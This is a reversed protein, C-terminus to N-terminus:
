AQTHWPFYLYKLHPGTLEDTLDSLKVPDAHTNDTIWIEGNEIREIYMLHGALDDAYSHAKEFVIVSGVLPTEGSQIGYEQFQAALDDWLHADRPINVPIPMRNVIYNVCGETNQKIIEPTDSQELTAIVLLDAEHGPLVRGLRTELKQIENEVREKEAILGMIQEDFGHIEAQIAQIRPITDPDITSDFSLLRNQLASLDEALLHRQEALDGIQAKYGILQEQQQLLEDYVPRNVAAIYDEPDPPAPPPSLIDPLPVAHHQEPTPREIQTNHTEYHTERYIADLSPLAFLTPNGSPPAPIQGKEPLIGFLAEELDDSAQALKTSFTMLADMWQELYVRQHHYHRAFEVGEANQLHPLVPEILGRILQISHDIQQASRKFQVTADRLENLKFEVEAM